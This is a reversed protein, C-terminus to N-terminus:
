TWVSSSGTRLAASSTALRRLVTTMPLCGAACSFTALACYLQGSGQMRVALIGGRNQARLRACFLPPLMEFGYWGCAHGSADGSGAMFGDGHM